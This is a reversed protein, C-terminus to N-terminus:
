EVATVVVIDSWIQRRIGWGSTRTVAPVLFAIRGGLGVRSLAEYEERPMVIAWRRSAALFGRVEDEDDLRRLPCRAYYRLSARWRELRYLAVDCHESEIRVRHALQRTPRVQELVPFGAGVITGYVIIMMGLPVVLVPPPALRRRIMLVVLVVGGITLALPLLVASRPMELGLLPLNVTLFIGIAAFLLALVFVSVCTAPYENTRAGNKASVWAKAALLCCAPAAPFIYRDIRFRALTFFAIVVVLWAWLLREEVSPGRGKRWRWLTDIAYGATVVSWPFFAALFMLLYFAHNASSASLRAQTVYSVNGALVYDRVFQDGFQLYMWIFWPSSGLIVGVLGSKWHLSQMTTRSEGGSAWALSFLLCVLLLAVPGKTMVAFSLGAYGIYQLNPRGRLTAVFLCAIGGFLFATFVMDLYSIRALAFTAPITALMLWSREGVAEGLLRIGVWRTAGFLALAALASPLRAAFGTEGILRFSLAQLWHFLVPKDIFPAGDLLPVLWSRAQLMERTIQTYHAPDPDLLTLYGLRWFVIVWCVLAWRLLSALQNTDIPRCRVARFISARTGLARDFRGM